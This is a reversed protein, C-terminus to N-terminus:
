HFKPVSQEKKLEKKIRFFKSRSMGTKEIFKEIQTKTNWCDTETVDLYIQIIENTETTAKFLEESKNHNYKIFAIAKKLTRFNFDKTAISTHEKLLGFVKKKQEASLDDRKNLLKKCVELKSDYSFNFEYTITRTIMARTTLDNQKVIKNCLIIVKSDLIFSSPLNDTKNSKSQYQVIRKGDSDWLCGKLISMSVANDFLGEVDDLIIVKKKRNVYLFEYLSLPTTYGNSYEWEDSKLNLKIENITLFTKGIGGEGYFILGYYEKTSLLVKVLETPIRFEKYNNNDTPKANKWKEIDRESEIQENSKLQINQKVEIFSSAQELQKKLEAKSVEKDIEKEKEIIIM